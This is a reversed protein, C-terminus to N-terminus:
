GLSQVVYKLDNKFTQRGGPKGGGQEIFQPSRLFLTLDDPFAERTQFSVLDSGSHLQGSSMWGKVPSVEKRCTLKCECLGQLTVLFRLIFAMDEEEAQDASPNQSVFVCSDGVNKISYQAEYKITPGQGPVGMRGEYSMERITITTDGTILNRSLTVNKGEEAGFGGRGMTRKDLTVDFRSDGASSQVNTFMISLVCDASMVPSFIGSIALQESKDLSEGAPTGPMLAQSAAAAAAPLPPHGVLRPTSPVTAATLSDPYLKAIQLLNSLSQVAGQALAAEYQSKDRVFMAIREQNFCLAQLVGTPCELPYVDAGTSENVIKIRKPATEEYVEHGNPAISMEWEVTGKTTKGKIVLAGDKVSLSLNEGFYGVLIHDLSVEGKKGELRLAVIPFLREYLHQRFRQKGEADQVLYINGLQAKITPDLVLPDPSQAAAAAALAKDYIVVPGPNPLDVKAICDQLFRLFDGMIEPTNALPQQGLWPALDVRFGDMTSNFPEIRRTQGNYSLRQRYTGQSASAAPLTREAGFSRKIGREKSIIWPSEPNTSKFKHISSSQNHKEYIAELDALVEFAQQVNAVPRKRIREFEDKIEAACKLQMLLVLDMERYGAVDGGNHQLQQTKSNFSLSLPIERPMVEQREGAVVAGSRENRATENEVVITDNDPRFLYYRRGFIVLEKTQNVEVGRKLAELSVTPNQLPTHALRSSFMQCGEWQSLERRPLAVPLADAAAAAAAAVPAAPPKDERKSSAPLSEDRKENIATLLRLDVNSYEETPRGDRWTAQSALNYSISRQGPVNERRHLFATENEVAVILNGNQMVRTYVYYKEGDLSVYRPEGFTHSLGKLIEIAQQTIQTRQAPQPGAAAAPAAVQSPGTARNWLGSVSSWINM